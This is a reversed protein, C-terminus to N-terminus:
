LAQGFDEHAENLFAEEEPTSDRGLIANRHPFRGFRCVLEHHREAFKLCATIVRQLESPAEAALRRYATLSEEQAALYEAHQLPMYFFVRELPGLAADAARQMGDLALSLAREDTAFARPTGRYVNRPFQDFLLILALRRRPSDAWADLQGAQAHALLTAFRRELDQDRLAILDAPADTAFWFSMRAALQSPSRNPRGFWFDLVARADDM